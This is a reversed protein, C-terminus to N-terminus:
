NILERKIIKLCISRYLGRKPSPIMQMANTRPKQQMSHILYANLFLFLFFLYFLHVSLCVKIKKKFFFQM